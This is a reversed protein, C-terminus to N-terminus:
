WGRVIPRRYNLYLTPRCPARVIFWGVSGACGDQRERVDNTAEQEGKQPALRQDGSGITVDARSEVAVVSLPFRFPLLSLVVLIFVPVLLIWFFAQGRSIHRHRYPASAFAGFMVLVAIEILGIWVLYGAQIAGFQSEVVMSLYLFIPALWAFMFHRWHFRGVLWLGKSRPPTSM